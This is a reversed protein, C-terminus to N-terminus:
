KGELAAQDSRAAQGSAAPGEGAGLDADGDGGTAKQQAPPSPRNGAAPFHEDFLSQMAASARHVDPRAGGRQPASSVVRMGYAVPMSEQRRHTVHNNWSDEFDKRATAGAHDKIIVDAFAQIAEEGVEAEYAKKSFYLSRHLLVDVLM